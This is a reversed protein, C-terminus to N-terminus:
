KQMPSGYTPALLTKRCMKTTSNYLKFKFQDNSTLIFSEKTVPPYWACCLPIASQELRESSLIRLGTEIHSGELDYEVQLMICNMYTRSDCTTSYEISLKTCMSKVLYNIQM